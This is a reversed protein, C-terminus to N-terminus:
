TLEFRCVKTLVLGNEINLILTVPKEALIKVNTTIKSMEGHTLHLRIYINYIYECVYNLSTM